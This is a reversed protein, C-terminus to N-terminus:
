AHDKELLQSQNNNEPTRKNGLPVVAFRVESGCVALIEGFVRMSLKRGGSLLRSVYGHSRGLTKEIDVQTKGASRMANSLVAQAMALTFEGAAKTQEDDNYPSTLV